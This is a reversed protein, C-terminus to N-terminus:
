QWLSLSVKILLTTHILCHNTTPPIRLFNWVIIIQESIKFIVLWILGVFITILFVASFELSFPFLIVLFNCLYVQFLPPNGVNILYFKLWCFSGPMDALYFNYLYEFHNSEHLCSLGSVQLVPLLFHFVVTVEFICLIYFIYMYKNGGLSSKLLYKMVLNQVTFDVLYLAVQFTIRSLSIDWTCFNM